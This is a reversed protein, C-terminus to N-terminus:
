QWSRRFIRTAVCITPMTSDALVAYRVAEPDHVDPWVQIPMTPLEMEFAVRWQEASSWPHLLITM